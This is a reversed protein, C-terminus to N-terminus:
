SPLLSIRLLSFALSIDEKGADSSKGLSKSTTNSIIHVLVNPKHGVVQLSGRKNVSPPVLKM